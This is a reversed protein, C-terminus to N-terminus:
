ANGRKKNNTHREFVVAADHKNGIKDNLGGCKCTVRYEIAGRVFDHPGSGRIPPRKEVQVVMKCKDDM